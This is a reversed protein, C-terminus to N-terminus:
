KSSLGAKALQSINCFYAARLANLPLGDGAGCAYVSFERLGGGHYSLASSQTCRQCSQSLAPLSYASTDNRWVLISEHM